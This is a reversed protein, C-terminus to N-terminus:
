DVTLTTADFHPGVIAEDQKDCVRGRATVQKGALERHVDRAGYTLIWREGDATVLRAGDAGKGFPEVVLEGKLEVVDGRPLCQSSEDYGGSVDRSGPANARTDIPAVPAPAAPAPATPASPPNASCAAALCAILAPTASRM